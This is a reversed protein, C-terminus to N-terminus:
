TKANKTAIIEGLFGEAKGPSLCLKVTGYHYKEYEYEYEHEVPVMAHLLFLLGHINIVVSRAEWYPELVLVARSLVLVINEGRSRQPAKRLGGAIRTTCSKEKGPLLTLFIM